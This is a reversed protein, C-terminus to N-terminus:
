FFTNKLATSGNIASARVLKAAVNFSDFLSCLPTVISLQGAAAFDIRGMCMPIDLQRPSNSNIVTYCRPASEFTERDVGYGIRFLEFGDAVQGRGRAYLYPVKDTLTLYALGSELHRFQLPVDQPEVCPGTVHMVDFHQTLTVLERFDALNGDRKGRDLDSVAPPSSVPVTALSRGGLTM